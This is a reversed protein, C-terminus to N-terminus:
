VHARGIELAIMALSTWGWFVTNTHVPRLRGFSLWPVHDVDPATFKISLYVGILTGVILWSTACALYVFILRTWATDREGVSEVRAKGVVLPRDASLIPSPEAM